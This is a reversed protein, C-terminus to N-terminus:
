HLRVAAPACAGAAPQQRWQKPRVFCRWALNVTAALGSLTRATLFLKGMGRIVRALVGLRHRIEELLGFRQLAVGRCFTDLIKTSIADVGSRNEIYATAISIGDNFPATVSQGDTDVSGEIPEGAPDRFMFIM